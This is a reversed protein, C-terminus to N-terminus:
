LEVVSCNVPINSISWFHTFRIASQDGIPVLVGFTDRKLISIIRKYSEKIFLMRTFHIILNLANSMKVHSFHPFILNLKSM